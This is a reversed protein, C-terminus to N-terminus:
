LCLSLGGTKRIQLGLILHSGPNGCLFDLREWLPIVACVGTRSSLDRSHLVTKGCMSHPHCFLPNWFILWFQDCQPNNFFQKEASLDLVLQLGPIDRFCCLHASVKKRHFFFFCPKRSFPGLIFNLCKNKVVYIGPKTVGQTSTYHTIELYAWIQSSTINEM